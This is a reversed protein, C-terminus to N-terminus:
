NSPCSHAGKRAMATLCQSVVILAGTSVLFVVLGSFFHFFGEAMGPDSYHVLLGTGIIRASNAVVAIPIALLALTIRVWVESQTGYGYIIALTTLSVLSRLGSCAEAVELAMSPLNIVDGQRLVPVGLLPLLTSAVRSSFTQLPLTIQNLLIAPVPVMLFLFIWPFFSARLHDWGFFCVAMGAILFVISIRSLFLEAGLVGAVLLSLSFAVIVLGWSSPTPQLALLERRRRWLIFASFLPVLFGHSYNPDSWWQAVLRLFVTGYLWVILGILLASAAWPVRLPELRMPGTGAVYVEADKDM